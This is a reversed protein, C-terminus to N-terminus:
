SLSRIKADYVEQTYQEGRIFYFHRHMLIIGPGNLRHNLGHQRWMRDGSRYTVAPGDTRHHSGHEYFSLRHNTLAVTYKLTMDTKATAKVAYFICEGVMKAGTQQAVSEIRFM